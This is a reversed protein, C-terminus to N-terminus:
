EHSQESRDNDPSEPPLQKLYNEIEKRTMGALREKASLGEVREHTTLEEVIKRPSIYEFLEQISMNALLERRVERKYDEKTYAMEKRTMGELREHTTLEEVIKRPSIYEFLEQISMNALLERRVERKYDEKTYAMEIGELKYNRKLENLLNYLAVDHMQYHQLGYTILPEVGSLLHWLANRPIQEIERPVIVRIRLELFELEYVGPLLKRQCHTDETALWVPRHTAVAFLRLTGPSQFAQYWKDKWEQKTYLVTNSVLEWMSAATLSERISKYTVINHDALDVLGDPLDPWEIPRPNADARIIAADLRQSIQALELEQVVRFPLGTVIDALSVGFIRHWDTM